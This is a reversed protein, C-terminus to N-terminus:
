GELEPCHVQKAGDRLPLLPECSAGTGQGQTQLYQKDRHESFELSMTRVLSCVYTEEAGDTGIGEIHWGVGWGVGLGTGRIMGGTGEVGAGVGQSAWRNKKTLPTQVLSMNKIPPVANLETMSHQLTLYPGPDSELPLQSYTSVHLGSITM